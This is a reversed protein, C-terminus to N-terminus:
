KGKMAKTFDNRWGSFRIMGDADTDIYKRWNANFWGCAKETDIDLQDNAGTIYADKCMQLIDPSEWGEFQEAIYDKAREEITMIIGKNYDEGDINIRALNHM